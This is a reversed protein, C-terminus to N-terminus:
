ARFKEQIKEPDATPICDVFTKSDAFIAEKQVKKFLDGSTQILRKM